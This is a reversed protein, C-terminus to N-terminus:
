MPILSLETFNPFDKCMQPLYIYCGSKETRTQPIDGMQLLFGVKEVFLLKCDINLFFRQVNTTDIRFNNEKAFNNSRGWLQHRDVIRFIVAIPM